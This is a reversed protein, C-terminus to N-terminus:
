SIAGYRTGTATWTINSNGVVASGGGGAAGAASTAGGGTYVFGNAGANGSAGWDGGNGGFGGRAYQGSLDTYKFKYAGGTGAANYTGGNGPNGYVSRSGANNAIGAAGGSSNYGANSRGGGGGGGGASGPINYGYAVAAGGGSGGGGGGGITGNTNDITVLSSVSLAPGGGGGPLGGSTGLYGVYGGGGNGGRGLIYGNNILTVGGPFSGSITVGYASTTSASCVVGTDITVELSSSENWGATVAYARLDLDVQNTTITTSFANAKGYGDSMSIAGSAVQFLTRVAADNMSIQATATNGLEVNVDNLSIAGSVPLAM